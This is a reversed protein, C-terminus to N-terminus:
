CDEALLLTLVRTTHEPNSPDDSQFELNKDYCDIRFVFTWGYLQFSGCDHEGLPDDDPTFADFAAVMVIAKGVIEPPIAAVRDSMAVKGGRLTTRFADNLERIRIHNM